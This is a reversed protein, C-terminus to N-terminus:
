GGFRLGAIFYPSAPDSERALESPRGARQYIQAQTNAPHRRHATDGVRQKAWAEDATQQVSLACGDAQLKFLGRAREREDRRMSDTHWLGHAGEPDAAPEYRRAGASTAPARSRPASEARAILTAM